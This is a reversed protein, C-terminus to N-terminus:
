AVFIGMNLLSIFGDVQSNKEFLLLESDFNNACYDIGEQLTKKSPLLTYCYGNIKDPIFGDDCEGKNSWFTSNDPFKKCINYGGRILIDAAIESTPNKSAMLELLSLVDDGPLLGPFRYYFLYTNLYSKLTVFSGFIHNLQYIKSLKNLTLFNHLFSLFNTLNQM